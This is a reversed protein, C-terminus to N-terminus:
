ENVAGREHDEKFDEIIQEIMEDYKKAYYRDQYEKVRDKNKRAWERQYQNRMLRAKEETTLEKNEQM